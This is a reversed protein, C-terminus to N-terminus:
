RRLFYPGKKTEAGDRKAEELYGLLLVAGPLTERKEELLHEGGVALVAVAGLLERLRGLSSLDFPLVAGGTLAALKPFVRAATRDNGDRLFIVRTGQAKLQEAVSVAERQSEEFCDGIYVVVKPKERVARALIDILRTDGSRCRIGMAMNRLRGADNTFATFTHVRGGGHVALAVDLKGPIAEFLIDTLQKAAEWAASRSATADVAFVLRAREERLAPPVRPAPSVVSRPKDPEPLARKPPEIEPWVVQKILRLIGMFETPENSLAARM